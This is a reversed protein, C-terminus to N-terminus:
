NKVEGDIVSFKDGDVMHIIGDMWDNNEYSGIYKGGDKLNLTGQGHKLDNRYGGTYTGGNDFTETGQGHKLGDKFGGTYTEGNAYTYTGQGHYLGNKHGGTYNAGDAFTYTGICNDWEFPPTDKPCDSLALVNGNIVFVLTLALFLKKM